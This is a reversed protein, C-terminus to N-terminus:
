PNIVELTIFCVLQSPWGVMKGYFAFLDELKQLAWEKDPSESVYDTVTMLVDSIFTKKHDESMEKFVNKMLQPCVTLFATSYWTVCQFFMPGTPWFREAQM